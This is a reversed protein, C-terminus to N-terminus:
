ALARADECVYEYVLLRYVYAHALAHLDRVACVGARAGMAQVFM